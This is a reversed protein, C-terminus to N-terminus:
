WFWSNPSTKLEFAFRHYYYHLLFVRLISYFKLMQKDFCRNRISLQLNKKADAWEFIWRPKSKLIWSERIIGFITMAYCKLQFMSSFICFNIIIRKLGSRGNCFSCICNRVNDSCFLLFLEDSELSCREFIDKM